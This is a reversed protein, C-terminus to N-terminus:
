SCTPQVLIRLGADAAAREVVPGCAAVWRADDADAAGFEVVLGLGALNAAGRKVLLGLGTLMMLM